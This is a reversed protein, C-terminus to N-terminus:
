EKIAGNTLGGIIHKQMFMYFIMIPLMSMLFTAFSLSYDTTYETKFNYQFLTLTWSKANRNLIILPMMFDNWLWLGDKIMVTSIIPQMLPFVVLRFSQFTSAGDISAADEMDKPISNLFGVYLFVSECTSSAIACCVLGTTSMFHLRSMLIVLPMMKVQFPIFIGALLFYYLYQYAKQQKMSRSVAYSLMPMIFYCIGLTLATVYLSNLLSYYYTDSKVIQKINDLYLSHPLTFFSISNEQPTKFPTIITIYLPFVILLVGFILFFHILFASGKEMKM